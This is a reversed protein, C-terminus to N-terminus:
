CREEMASAPFPRTLSIVAPTKGAPTRELQQVFRVEATAVAGLRQQFRELVYRRVADEDANPAAVLSIRFASPATQRAQYRVIGPHGLCIDHVTIPHVHSGDPLELVEDVRGVPFSLLPLTRDCPCVEAAYSALDGMRFNLLVSARNVLNSLIVEGVQGPEADLGRKDLIRLPYLDCNLHIGRHQDCGFGIKLAEVAGYVTFVPIGCESVLWTRTAASLHDSTYLVAKPHHWAAGTRRIHAFLMELYSGYCCLLDPQFENILGINKAPSDTLFLYKRQIRMRKPFWGHDRIFEQIDRQSAGVPSVIVIERYGSWGGLARTMMSREREGHAANQFLSAPDHWITKPTGCSGSSLLGVCRSRDVARSLFYEPDRRVDDNELIPLRALDEVHLITEPRIGRRLMADRYYPVHRYAYQAMRRVRRSQRRRIEGAPLFPVRRQGLLHFALYASWAIGKVV